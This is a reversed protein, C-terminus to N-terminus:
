SKIFFNNRLKVFLLIIIGKPKKTVEVKKETESDHGKYKDYFFCFFVVFRQRVIETEKLSKRSRKEVRQRNLKSMTETINSSDSQCCIRKPRLDLKGLVVRFVGLSHHFVDSFLASSTRLSLSLTPRLHAVKTNLYLFGRTYCM